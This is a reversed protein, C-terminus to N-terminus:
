KDNVGEQTKKKNTRFNLFMGVCSILVVGAFVSGTIIQDFYILLASLGTIFITIFLAARITMKDIYYHRASNTEALGMVRDNWNHRADQKDKAAELIWDIIKPDILKLRELEESTPLLSDDFELHDEIRQVASDGNKSIAKTQTTKKTGKAM